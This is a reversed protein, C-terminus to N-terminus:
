DDLDSEDSNSESSSAYIDISNSDSDTYDESEVYINEYIDIGRESDRTVYSPFIYKLRMGVEKKKRTFIHVYLPVGNKTLTHHMYCTYMETKSHDCFPAHCYNCMYKYKNYGEMELTCMKHEMYNYCNLYHSFMDNRFSRSNAYVYNSTRFFSLSDEYCLYSTNKTSYNVDVWIHLAQM